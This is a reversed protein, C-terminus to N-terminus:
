LVRHFSTVASLSFCALLMMSCRNLLSPLDLRTIFESSSLRCCFRALLFDLTWRLM